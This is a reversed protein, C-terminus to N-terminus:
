FRLTNAAQEAHTLSKDLAAMTESLDPTEDNMWQRLVNMYVATIGILRLAGRVGSTSLGAAEMMWAM